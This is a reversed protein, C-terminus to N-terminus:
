VEPSETVLRLADRVDRGDLTRGSRVEGYLAELVKRARAVDDVDGVLRVENGRAHADIGLEEELIRLTRDGDGYLQAASQNDDFLLTQRTQTAHRAM